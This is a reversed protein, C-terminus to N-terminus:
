HTSRLLGEGFQLRVLSRALVRALKYVDDVPVRENVAHALELGNTGVMVCPIGRTTFLRMDAGYPVGVLEPAQDLEDAVSGKVVEVLPHDLPTEGPAFKGGSWSVEAEPCAEHVVRELAAQADGMREGLRVGVRGEFRLMDPVQSSWRGAELRGVLVPYPLELAAMLPHEVDSNIRREHEWLAEHIPIYRDIASIGELRLAAHASVGPVIGVFTMAGAQACCIQFATPEPIICAAFDSDRELAAFTGAGGDEESPVAQFVIDGPAEGFVSKIASIAHLGAIVGGKMDVSGRGHVFGDEVAGSWPGGHDWPVTGPDVVDVHGNLCVRPADSSGGKLVSSLGVLEERHAEEGPYDPHKRLTDLDHEHITSELGHAETMEGLREVVNREEGTISPVQVIRSLDAAIKEPNLVRLVADEIDAHEVRVEL